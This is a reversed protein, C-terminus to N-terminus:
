NYLIILYFKYKENAFNNILYLCNNKSGEEICIYNVLLIFPLFFLLNEFNIFPATSSVSLLISSLVVSILIVLLKYISIRGNNEKNKILFLLILCSLLLIISPKYIVTLYSYIIHNSIGNIRNLFPYFYNEMLNLLNINFYNSTILISIVASIITISYKKYSNFIIIGLLLFGVGLIFYNIKTYFLVTLIFGTIIQKLKSVKLGNSENSFLNFALLTIMVFGIRNYRGAYTLESYHLGIANPSISFIGLCMAFVISYLLPLKRNTIYFSLLTSILFIFSDSLGLANPTNGSIHIAISLILFPFFGLASNFDSHPIQGSYVRWGGDLLIPLDHGFRTIPISGIVYNFLIISIIYILFIIYISKKLIEM